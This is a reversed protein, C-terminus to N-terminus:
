NMQVINIGYEAVIPLMEAYEGTIHQSMFAVYSQRDLYKVADLLEVIQDILRADLYGDIEDDMWDM